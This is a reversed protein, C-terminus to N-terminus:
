SKSYAAAPTFNSKGFAMDSYLGDPVTLPDTMRYREITKENLTVGLGPKESLKLLGDKVELPENLLDTIFPNGTQDIEVTLGNPIAGM